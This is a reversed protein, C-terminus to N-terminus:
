IEQGEIDFVETNWGILENIRTEKEQIFRMEYFITSYKIVQKMTVTDFAAGIVASLFPVVREVSKLTLKRGIQEFIDKFISKELGKQGAKELAKQASKHALARMQTILRTVVNKTAMDSWTKKATQKVTTSVSLSMIKSITVSLEGEPTGGPSLSQTFVEAAIIMEDPDNKIDYSMSRLRVSKVSYANIGGGTTSITREM